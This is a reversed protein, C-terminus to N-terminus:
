RMTGADPDKQVNRGNIIVNEADLYMTSASRLMIDGNAEMVIKGPTSVTLGAEDIRLVTMEKQANFVRIDVVGAIWGKTSIPFRDDENLEDTEGGVQLLLQGDLNAALSINNNLDRGINAIIGGQTDLWLSQRDVTNAGINIEISGDFNLSGSRGGANALPGSVIINPSVVPNALYFNSAPQTALETTPVYEPPVYFSSPHLTSVTNAINHYVSGHGIAKGTFRNKPGVINAHEDRLKIVEYNLFPEILIDQYNPNFVIENPDNSSNNPYVTSYNEYRTLLGVNGTESSAPINLKFQGEKDIDFFMRSRLRAYNDVDFVNPPAMGVATVQGNNGVTDKKANVEFHYVISKRELAKIQFYANKSPSTEAATSKIKLANVLSTPSYPLIDRNIDIINGFVDVGTGKISEMLYNPSVLSLSFSDARSERRNVIYATSPFAGTKYYELEQANDRVGAFDEFEYVIERKEIRAPNRVTSGSNTNRPDSVPDMGIIKLIDDYATDIDRLYSAFNLAPRRDRKITGDINRGGQWVTYNYDFSNLNINRNIDLTITNAAEGLSIGDDDLTISSNTNAQITLTGKSLPPIVVNKNASSSQASPDKGLFGVIFYSNSGEARGVIVPTGPQVLGGIFGGGSSLYAIPLQVPVEKSDPTGVTNTRFKVYITYTSADTRVVTAKKLFSDNSFVVM